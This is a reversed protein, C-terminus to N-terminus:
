KNLKAPWNVLLEFNQSQTTPLSTNTLFRGDPAVDYWRGALSRVALEFLPKAASFEIKGGKTSVQVAMLTLNTRYFIEKGDRRWLPREGGTTSVQYQAGGAPFATVYIENKGSQDSEYALWKGDPSFAPASENAPSHLFPLPKRDGTLPLTYIDLKSVPDLYVYALYKGDPSAALFAATVAQAKDSKLIAQVDGTNDAAKAFIGLPEKISSVFYIQQGDSSWAPFDYKADGFVLRSRTGRADLVWIDNSELSLTNTAVRSGDPSIAVNKYQDEQGLTGLMKGTRDFWVLHNGSMTDGAVYVLKGDASASFEGFSFLSDLAVHEAIPIATGSLVGSRPDFPQAVINGDRWYLLHGAAFVASSCTHTLTVDQKGDLSAFHIETTDGCAGTPTKTYLFHQGDPLFHPWRHSGALGLNSTPASRTVAIPAGGEAPVRFIPSGRTAAFLITGSIGWSGGRADEADCIIQVAGGEAPVRKLKGDAFFGLHRGDSSWFPFYGGITGAVEHADASYLSRVLISCLTGGAMSLSATTNKCGVFAIRSGDPSIQPPGNRGLTDPFVGAPPILSAMLPPAPALRTSYKTVALTLAAAAFAAPLAWALGRRWKNGPAAGMTVQQPQEAIWKLELKVDFASQYREDPNKALCTRILHDFSPPATRQISTLPEPDKELIASAVSIQSKGEFARRGTAMEYLVAGLSFIDSRGDIEKGEVQEPSMYHFTGVVTGRETVPSEHKSATLTAVGALPAVPKALGFDLLKVGSATLMINGPKLDRHAVGSRHAKDLADAIQMGYKLVQELPLPGKELRKTLTEGEVCEMVLYDIGDQHGIDHLVCIHPHNLRSITKAEREFRQRHVPDASFESPLIKIAVTRDLRTDRARYVEGMGGAGLPALIEYPGL